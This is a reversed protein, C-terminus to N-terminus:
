VRASAIRRPTNEECMTNSFVSRLEHSQDYILPLACEWQDSFPLRGFVLPHENARLDCRM